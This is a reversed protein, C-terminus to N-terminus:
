EGGTGELALPPSPAPLLLRKCPGKPFRGTRSGGMLWGCQVSAAGGKGTLGLKDLSRSPCLPRPRGTTLSCRAAKAYTDTGDSHQGRRSEEVLESHGTPM